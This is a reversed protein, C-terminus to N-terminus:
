RMELLSKLDHNLYYRYGLIAAFGLIILARLSGRPMHLPAAAGSGPVSITHGHAAFFSGIILFMLYFLYPPIDDHQYMLAWILGLVIFTLLARVSGAPLGLPHRRIPRSLTPSSSTMAADRK